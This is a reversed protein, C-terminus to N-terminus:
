EDLKRRARPSSIRALSGAHPVPAARNERLNHQPSPASRAHTIELRQDLPRLSHPGVRV